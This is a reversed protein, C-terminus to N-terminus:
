RLREVTFGSAVLAHIVTQSHEEDRTELTLEAETELVGINRGERHHAIAIVNAGKEALVGVICALQGPRDPILIKIVLYRGSVTLGYRVVSVLTTADINGGAVVACAPGEGGVRGALLAAVPAAGAGEAVIKSRELLLVIAQSIEDDEVVVIGDLLERLIEGTLEGPRKVAIGDAITAGVPERGAFPACAASQVGVLRLEPRLERLALAIGAALGGGGVPIVVTGPGLPLQEALELGLTGQGAIVRPDEFAHLFTAGSREVHQLAADAAEDFGEGALQVAAGYGRAAEVKAMPAAEPVFITAAIGAERAAWAVAQGHNGASATVVGAAREEESLQAITNYAGRIKFAGTRQLNEAKLVVPRGTLRSLTESPYVPTERAVGALRLRAARIDAIGPRVM